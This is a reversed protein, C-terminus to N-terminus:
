ESMLHSPLKTISAQKATLTIDCVIVDGQVPIIDQGLGNIPCFEGEVTVDYNDPAPNVNITYQDGANVTNIEGSVKDVDNITPIFSDNGNVFVNLTITPDPIIIDANFNVSEGKCGRNDDFVGTCGVRFSLGTVETASHDWDDGSAIHVGFAAVVHTATSTTYDVYLRETQTSQAGPDALPTLYGIDDITITGESVFMKFQDEGVGLGNISTSPQPSNDPNTELTTNQPPDITASASANVFCGPSLGFLFCIDPTYNRDFSTAYDFTHQVVNDNKQIDWDVVLRQQQGATIGTIDIAIPVSDGENYAAGDDNSLNGKGAWEIDSDCTDIENLCVRIDGSPAAYADVTSGLIITTSLVFLVLAFNKSKYNM